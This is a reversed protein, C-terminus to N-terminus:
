YESFSLDADSAVGASAARPVAKMTKAEFPIGEQYVTVVDPKTEGTAEVEAGEKFWPEKSFKTANLILYKQKESKILWGGEEVTRALRGRITIEMTNVHVFFVFALSLLPLIVTRNIM